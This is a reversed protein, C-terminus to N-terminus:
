CQGSMPISHNPDCLRFHATSVFKFIRDSLYVDKDGCTNEIERKTEAEKWRAVLAEDFVERRWAPRDTTENVFALMRIERHLIHNWKTIYHMLLPFDHGCSSATAYHTVPAGLGPLVGATKSIKVWHHDAM